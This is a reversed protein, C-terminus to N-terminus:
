LQIMPPNLEDALQTLQSRVLTLRKVIEFNKLTQQRNDKLKKQNRARTAELKRGCVAYLEAAPGPANSSGGVGVVWDNFEYM